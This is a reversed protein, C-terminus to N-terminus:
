VKAGYGRLIKAIVPDAMALDQLLEKAIPHTSEVLALAMKLRIPRLEEISM